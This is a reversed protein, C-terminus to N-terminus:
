GTVPSLILLASQDAAQQFDWHFVRGATLAEIGNAQQSTLTSPTIKVEGPPLVDKLPRQLEPGFAARPLLVARNFLPSQASVGAPPPMFAVVYDAQPMSHFTYLALELAQRRVLQGRALTAQGPISRNQATGALQYFVGSVPFAVDLREEAVGAKGSRVLIASVRVPGASSEIQM